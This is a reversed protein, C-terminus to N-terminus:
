KHLDSFALEAQRLDDAAYDREEAIKKREADTKTIQRKIRDIEGELAGISKEYEKLVRSYISM